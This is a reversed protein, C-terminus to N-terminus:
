SERASPWYDVSVAPEFGFTVGIRMMRRVLGWDNPAAFLAHGLELELFRLGAHYIAAQLGIQGLEPPFRGLVRVEGGPLHQRIQGYAFERRQGRAVDLLREVHDPVFADDDGLVAIWQGKALHLGANIGPTGAALWARYPDEDYPGRLSLNHFSVRQDDLAAIAEGVAPPASDGVVIVEINAHTQALASPIARELLTDIRNWTPIVVSVLPELREFAPEYDPSSRLRRLARRARPDDDHLLGVAATLVSLQSQIADLRENTAGAMQELSGALEELRTIPDEVPVHQFGPPRAPMAVDYANAGEAECAGRM